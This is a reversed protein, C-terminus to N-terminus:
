NSRFVHEIGADFPVPTVIKKFDRPNKKKTFLKGDNRIAVERGDPLTVVEVTFNSSKGAQKFRKPITPDSRSNRGAQSRNVAVQMIRLMAFIDTLSTTSGVASVFNSLRLM